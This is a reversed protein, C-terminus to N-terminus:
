VRVHSKKLREEIELMIIITLENVLMKNRWLHLFSDIRSITAKLLVSPLGTDSVSFSYSRMSLTDWSKHNSKEPSTREDIELNIFSNVYSITM